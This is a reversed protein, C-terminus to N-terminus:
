LLANRSSVSMSWQWLCALCILHSSYNHAFVSLCPSAAILVPNTRLGAEWLRKPCTSLSPPSGTGPTGGLKDSSKNLASLGSPHGESCPPRIEEAYFDRTCLKDLKTPSTQSLLHFTLKFFFLQLYLLYFFVFVIILFYYVPLFISGVKM